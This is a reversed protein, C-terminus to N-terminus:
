STPKKQKAQSQGLQLLAGAQALTLRSHKSSLQFPGEAARCLFPACPLSHLNEAPGQLLEQPKKIEREEQEEGKRKAWIGM